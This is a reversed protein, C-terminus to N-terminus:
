ETPPTVHVNLRKRLQQIVTSKFEDTTLSDNYSRLFFRAAEEIDKDLASKIYNLRDPDDSVVAEAVAYHMCERCATIVQSLVQHVMKGDPDVISWFIEWLARDALSKLIEQVNDVTEEHCTDEALEESRDTRIDPPTPENSFNYPQTM